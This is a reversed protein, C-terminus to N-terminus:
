VYSPVEARVLRFPIFPRKDLGYPEPYGFKAGAWKLWRISAENRADVWNYLHPYHTLMEPIFIRTLRLFHIWMEPIGNTGLLWVSAIDPHKPGEPCFGFMATPKGKNVITQCYSANEFCYTLAQEPTHHHSAWIERIDSARLESRMRNIDSQVTDRVMVSGKEYRIM